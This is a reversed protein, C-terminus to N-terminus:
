GAYPYTVAPGAPAAAGGAEGAAAEGAAAEGAAAPTPVAPAAAAAAELGAWQTGALAKKLKIEIKTGLVEFRSEEPVVPAHLQLDLCYDEQGAAASTLHPPARHAPHLAAVHGPGGLPFFM